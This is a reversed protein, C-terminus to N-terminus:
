RKYRYNRIKPNVDGEDAGGGAESNESSLFDSLNSSQSELTQQNYKTQGSKPPSRAPRKNGTHRWKYAM